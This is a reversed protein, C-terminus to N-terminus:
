TTDSRVANGNHEMVPGMLQVSNYGGGKIRPLVTDAFEETRPCKRTTRIVYWRTSRLNDTRVTEEEPREQVTNSKRRASGLLDRRMAGMENPPVRTGSIRLIGMLM